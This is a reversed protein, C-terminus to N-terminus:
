NKSLIRGFIGVCGGGFFFGVTLLLLPTSVITDAITVVFDMVAGAVTGFDDLLGVTEPDPLASLYVECTVPVVLMNQDLPLVFGCMQDPILGFFFSEGTDPLTSDFLFPNGMYYGGFGDVLQGSYIVGDVSVNCQYGYPDAPVRFDLFVFTMTGPSSTNELFSGVFAPAIVFDDAALAPVAVMFVVLLLCLLPAARKILIM